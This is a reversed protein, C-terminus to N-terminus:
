KRGNDVGTMMGLRAKEQANYIRSYLGNRAILEAHTGLEEIGGGEMVVVMDASPFAALRHSCLLITVREEFPREKGFAERLAAIIKAETEADVSSFPDDLILLGPLGPAFAALARALGIRQRQGGSVLTGLEGIQTDLGQPFGAVDQELSALKLIGAISEDAISATGLSINERISGSFLNVDQPLYGLVGTKEELRLTEIRRNDVRVEGSQIPYVGLLVRALASKGSGIPGTVGVLSGAPINLSLNRLAPEPAGPYYFTVQRLSVGAPGAERRPVVKEPQSIGAVHWPDFSALRPEGKTSLAPALLPSLRAYAAAGSQISNVFQPIRHGRNTFRLFLQLYAVFGGVSMAGAVVREGGQWVLAVIGATMLLAYVPQLGMRLRVVALNREAYKQALGAVEDTAAQRRGFLRLIRFGALFEQLSATLDANAERAKTTRGTVWRGSFRAIFLAVPVPAMAIVTLGPEMVAMAVVFSISFLVTDWTEVTFERMGTSLVEVDGVTRAMLDGISTKHLDALPRALLGRFADARVNARIRANATMLWWRKGIRPVETLLTGGILALVAWTVDTSTAEGRSLALVKNIARGLLLAPLVVATNMAIGCVSGLVLQGAVQRMYHRMSVIFQISSIGRAKM